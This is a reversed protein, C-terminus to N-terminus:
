PVAWRLYRPLAPLFRDARTLTIQTIQFQELRLALGLGSYISTKSAGAYIERDPAGLVYIMEEENMGLAIGFAEPCAGVVVTHGGCSVSQTLGAQDFDIDVTSGAPTAYRWQDAALADAREKAPRWPSGAGDRVFQPQNFGYLTESKNRDISYEGYFVFNNHFEKASMGVFIVGIAIGVVNIWRRVLTPDVFSWTRRSASRKGRRRRTSNAPPRNQPAAADQENLM